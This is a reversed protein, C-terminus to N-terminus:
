IFYKQNNAPFEIALCRVRRTEELFSKWCDGAHRRGSFDFRLLPFKRHFKLLSGLINMTHRMSAPVALPCETRFEFELKMLVVTGVSLKEAIRTSRAERLASRGLVAPMVPTRVRVTIAFSNALFDVV